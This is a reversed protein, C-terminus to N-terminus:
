FRLTVLVMPRIEVDKVAGAQIDLRNKFGYGVLIAKGDLDPTLRNVGFTLLYRDTRIPTIVTSVPVPESWHGSETISATVQRETVTETREIGGPEKITRYVIREPGQVKVERVIEKIAPHEYALQAEKLESDTKKWQVLLTLCTLCALVLGVIAGKQWNKLLNPFM